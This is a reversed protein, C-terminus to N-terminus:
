CWALSGALQILEEMLSFGNFFLMVPLGVLIAIFGIFATTAGPISLSAPTKMASLWMVNFLFAPWCFGHKIAQHIQSKPSRFVDYKTM